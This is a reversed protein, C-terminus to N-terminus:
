EVDLLWGQRLHINTVAVSTSTTAVCMEQLVELYLAFSHEQMKRHQYATLRCHMQYRTAVHFLSPQAFFGVMTTGHDLLIPLWM